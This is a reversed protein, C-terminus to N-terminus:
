VAPEALPRPFRAPLLGPVASVASEATHTAPEDEETTRRCGFVDLQKHEPVLDRHQATGLRLRPPGPRVPRYQGRQNTPRGPCESRVPQHCPCPAASADGAPRGPTSM